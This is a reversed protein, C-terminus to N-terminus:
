QRSVRGTLASVTLNLSRGQLATHTLQLRGAVASGRAYFWAYQDTSTVTPSTVVAGSPTRLASAGRCYSTATTVTFGFANPKSVPDYDSSPFTVQAGGPSFSSNTSATAYQVCSQPPGPNYRVLGFTNSGASPFRVGYVLPHSESTVKAQQAKLQSEVEERSGNLSQSLWYNRLSGFSLAFLTSMIFFVILGEAITFGEERKM